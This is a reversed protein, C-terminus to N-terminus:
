GWGWRRRTEEEDSKTPLNCGDFVMIPTVGNRLMLDVRSMCYFVFRCPCARSSLVENNNDAATNSCCSSSSMAPLGPGLGARSLPELTWGLPPHM